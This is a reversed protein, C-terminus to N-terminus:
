GVVERIQVERLWIEYMWGKSTVGAVVRYRYRKTLENWVVERVLWKWGPDAYGQSNGVDDKVKVARKTVVMEGVLFRSQPQVVSRM